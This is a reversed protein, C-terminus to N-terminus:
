LHQDDTWIWLNSLCWPHCRCPPCVLAHAPLELFGGVDGFKAVSSPLRTLAERGVGKFTNTSKVGRVWSCVRGLCKRALKLDRCFVNTSNQLAFPPRIIFLSLLPLLSPLASAHPLPSLHCLQALLGRSPPSLQSHATHNTLRLSLWAPFPTSALSM